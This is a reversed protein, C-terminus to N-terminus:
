VKQFYRRQKWPLHFFVLGYQMDDEVFCRVRFTVVREESERMGSTFLSLFYESHAALVVRHARFSVSREEDERQDDVIRLEVDTFTDSLRLSQPELNRRTQWSSM